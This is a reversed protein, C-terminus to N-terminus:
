KCRSADEIEVGVADREGRWFRLVKVLYDNLIEASYQFKHVGIIPALNKEAERVHSVTPPPSATVPPAPVLSSHTTDQGLEDVIEASVAALSESQPTPTSTSDRSEPEQVTTPHPEVPIGTAGGVGGNSATM